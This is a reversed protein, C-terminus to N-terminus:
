LIWTMVLTWVYDLLGLIVGSILVMVITIFTGSSVEKHTPWTVKSLETVVENMFTNAQKNFALIAFVVLGSLISVVPIVIQLKKIKSELDLYGTMNQFTWFVLAGLMAAVAIFSLNVWKQTQNEM